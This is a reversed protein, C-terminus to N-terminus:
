GAGRDAAVGARPRGEAGALGGDLQELVSALRPVQASMRTGATSKWRPSARATRARAADRGRGAGPGPLRLPQASRRDPEGAMVATSFGRDRLGEAIAPGTVRDPQNLAAIQQYLDLRAARSRRAAGLQRGHAPGRLLLPVSVGIALANGEPRSSAARPMAAVARNLWGSTM